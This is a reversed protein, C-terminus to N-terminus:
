YKRHQICNMKKQSTGRSFAHSEIMIFVIRSIRKIEDFLRSKIIRKGGLYVM